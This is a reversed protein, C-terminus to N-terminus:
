QRFIHHVIYMKSFYPLLYVSGSLLFFISFLFSHFHLVLFFYLFFWCFCCYFVPKCTHSVDHEKKGCNQFIIKTWYKCRSINLSLKIECWKYMCVFLISCYEIWWWVMSSSCLTRFIVTNQLCHGLLFRM